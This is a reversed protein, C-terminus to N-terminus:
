IINGLLSTFLFFIIYFTDISLISILSLIEGIFNISGPVNLNALIFLILIARLILDLMFISDIYRSYTKNILLGAM